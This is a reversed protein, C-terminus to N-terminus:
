SLAVRGNELRSSIVRLYEVFQVLFHVQEFTEIAKVSRRRRVVRIVREVLDITELRELADNYIQNADTYPSIGNTPPHNVPADQPQPQSPSPNAGAETFSPMLANLANGSPIPGIRRIWGILGLKLMWCCAVLGARGVGGRCHVLVSTGRLTYRTIITDLHANIVAPDLPAFGEPTPIRLVDLGLQHAEACYEEWPAGLFHLEGDDLCCIICGVGSDRIRQLDRGLDRCITGRGKVPGQLRVKKGPCSSLFLNGLPPRPLAAPLPVGGNSHQPRHINLRPQLRFPQTPFEINTNTAEQLESAINSSVPHTFYSAAENPIGRGRELEPSPPLPISAPDSAIMKPSSHPAPPPTPIDKTLETQIFTAPIASPPNEPMREPPPPAPTGQGPATLADLTISYPLDLYTPQRQYTPDQLFRALQRVLEFPVMPSLNIPHTESTKAPNTGDVPLLQLHQPLPPLPSSIALSLEQELESMAADQVQSGETANSIQVVNRKADLHARSHSALWWAQNQSIAAQYVRLERCHHPLQISLPIYTAPAGKPGFKLQHYESQHHQSALWSLQAATRLVAPDTEPEAREMSAVQMKQQPTLLENVDTQPHVAMAM